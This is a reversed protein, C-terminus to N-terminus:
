SCKNDYKVSYKKGRLVISLEPMKSLDVSNKDVLVGGSVVTESIVNNKYYLSYSTVRAYSEKNCVIVKYKDNEVNFSYVFDKSYNNNVGETTSQPVYVVSPKTTDTSTTTTRTVIERDDKDVIYKKILLISLIFIAIIVIILLINYITKRRKRGNVINLRKNNM